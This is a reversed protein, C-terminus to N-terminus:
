KLTVYTYGALTGTAPDTTSPDGKLSVVIVAYKGKPLDKTSDGEVLLLVTNTTGTRTVQNNAMIGVPVSIDVGTPVKGTDPTIDWFINTGAPLSTTGTISFSEGAMKEGPPDFSITGRSVVPASTSLMTKQIPAETATVPRTVRDAPNESQKEHVPNTEGQPATDSGTCGASILIALTICTALGAPIM